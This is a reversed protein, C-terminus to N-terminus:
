FPIDVEGPSDYNSRQYGWAVAIMNEDVDPVRSMVEGEMFLMEYGSPSVSEYIGTKPCTEGSVATFTYPLHYGEVNREFLRHVDLELNIRLTDLRDELESEILGMLSGAVVSLFKRRMRFLVGRVGSVLRGWLGGISKRFRLFVLVFFPAVVPWVADLAWELVVPFVWDPM